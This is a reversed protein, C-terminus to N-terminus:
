TTPSDTSTPSGPTSPPDECMRLTTTGGKDFEASTGYTLAVYRDRGACPAAVLRLTVRRGDITGRATINEAGWEDWVIDTIRTDGEVLTSPRVTGQGPEQPSAVGVPMLSDSIPAVSCACPEPQSCAALLALLGAAGARLTLAQTRRM